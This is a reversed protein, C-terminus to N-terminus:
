AGAKSRARRLEAAMRPDAAVILRALESPKRSEREAIAELADGEAETLRMMYPRSRTEGATPPRGRRATTSPKKKRTTM